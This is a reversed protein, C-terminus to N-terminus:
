KMLLALLKKFLKKAHNKLKKVLKKGRLALICRASKNIMVIDNLQKIEDEM